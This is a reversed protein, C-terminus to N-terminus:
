STHLDSARPTELGKVALPGEGGHLCAVILEALATPASFHPLHGQGPMPTISLTRIREVLDAVSTRLPHIESETGLLVRPACRLRDGDAVSPAFGDMGRLEHLFLPMLATQRAWLASGRFGDLQSSSVNFLQKLALEFAEEHRRSRVLDDLMPM